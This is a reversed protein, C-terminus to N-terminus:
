GGGAGSAGSNGATGADERAAAGSAGSAAADMSGDDSAGADIADRDRAPTVGQGCGVLMGFSAVMIDPYNGVDVASAKNALAMNRYFHLPRYKSPLARRPEEDAPHETQGAHRQGRGGLVKAKTVVHTSAADIRILAVLGAATNAAASGEPEHRRGDVPHRRDDRIVAAIVLEHRVEDSRAHQRVPRCPM